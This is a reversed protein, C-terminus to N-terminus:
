SIDASCITKGSGLNFTIWSDAGNNSWKTDMNNDVAHSPPSSLDYSSATVSRIPLTECGDVSQGFSMQTVGPIVM